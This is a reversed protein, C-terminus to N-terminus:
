RKNRSERVFKVNFIRMIRKIPNQIKKPLYIVAFIKFKLFLYKEWEMVEFKTDSLSYGKRKLIKFTDPLIKGQVVGNLINFPNTRVELCNKFLIHEANESENLRDIEFQWPTYNDDGVKKILFNREWISPLLNIGYDEDEYIRFYNSNNHFKKRKIVNYQGKYPMKIYDIHNEKMFEIMGNIESNHIKESVFFDELLLCIYKEQIIALSKIIKNSWEDNKGIKITKVSKYQFEKENTLLYVPYPCDQWYTYFLEFFHTWLASYGDFGVVVIALEEYEM